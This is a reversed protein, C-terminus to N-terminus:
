RDIPDEKRMNLNNRGFWKLKLNEEEQITEIQKTKNQKLIIKNETRECKLSLESEMHSLIGWVYQVGVIREYM